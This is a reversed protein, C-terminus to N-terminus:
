RRPPPWDDRHSQRKRRTWPQTSADIGAPTLDPEIELQWGVLRSLIPAPGEEGLYLSLNDHLADLLEDLTAGDAFCGELEPVEAWYGGPERRVRIQLM